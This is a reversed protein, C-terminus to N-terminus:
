GTRPADRQIAYNLFLRAVDSYSVASGHGLGDL